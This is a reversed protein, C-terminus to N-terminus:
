GLLDRRAVAASAGCAAARAELGEAPEDGFLVVPLGKFRENSSLFRCLRAGDLGGGEAEVLVLDPWRARRALLKAAAEASPSLAVEFGGEELEARLRKGTAESASVALIRRRGGLARALRQPLDGAPEPALAREAGAEKLLAEPDAGASAEGALLLARGTFGRDRLLATARRAGEGAVLLVKAGAALPALKAPDADLALEHGAAALPARLAEGLGAGECCILVRM